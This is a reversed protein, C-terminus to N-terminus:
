APTSKARRKLCELEERMGCALVEIDSQTDGDGVAAINFRGAYSLAGVGISVRGILPLLPFVEVVRAGGLYLPVPPGTLDATEVNVRQRNILGLMARGLPGTFRMGGVSPRTRAKRRATEAAIVRLRDAPDPVGIPLPVMMQAIENGRAGDYNGRRLSVPVYARVVEGEDIPEGRSRLLRRLGGALVVLLADNVKAGGAHAAARMLELDARVLAVTRRDGVRRDLTTPPLAPEAFLERLAPLAEAAHALTRGPHAVLNARRSRLDRRRTREDSNLVEDSPMPRPSWPEPVAPPADPDVDLFCGLISIGAMGDAIAHHARVYMGVCAQELGTLFWMEWLPRGPDLRHRRLREVAALLELEGGPPDVSAVRVHNELDFDPADVWLPGGLGARPVHLRQRLREVLHLRGAVARRVVEIAFRGDRDLLGGADIIALAGIDQPWTEGALIMVEDASTLREVVM